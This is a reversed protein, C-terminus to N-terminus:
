FLVLKFAFIEDDVSFKNQFERKYRKVEIITQETADNLDMNSMSKNLDIKLM